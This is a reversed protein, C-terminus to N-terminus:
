SVVNRFESAVRKKISQWTLWLWAETYYLWVETYYEIKETYKQARAHTHGPGPRLMCSSAKCDVMRHDQGCRICKHEQDCPKTHRFCQGENYSFCIKSAQSTPTGARRFLKRPPGSQRGTNADSQRIRPPPEQAAAPELTSLACESKGHDPAMCRPCTLAEM